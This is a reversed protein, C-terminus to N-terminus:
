RTYQPFAAAERAHVPKSNTWNYDQEFAIMAYDPPMPLCGAPLLAGFAAPKCLSRVMIRRPAARLYLRAPTHPHGGADVVNAVGAVAFALSASSVFFDYTKLGCTPQAPTHVVGKVLQMWGSQRLLSPELNFDGAM